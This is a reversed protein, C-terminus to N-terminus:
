GDIKKRRLRKPKNMRKITDALRSSPGGITVYEAKGLRIAREACALTVFAVSDKRYAITVSGSPKWDWDCLFKIRRGNNNM